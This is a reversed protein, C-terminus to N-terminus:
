WGFAALLFGSWFAHDLWLDASDQKICWMEEYVIKNNQLVFM